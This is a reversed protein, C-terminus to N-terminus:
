KFFERYWLLLPVLILLAIIADLTIAMILIQDGTMNLLSVRPQLTGLLITVVCYLAGQLACIIYAWKKGNKIGIIASYITMLGNLTIMITIGAYSLIILSILESDVGASTLEESAVPIIQSHLLGWIIIMISAISITYMSIKKKDM